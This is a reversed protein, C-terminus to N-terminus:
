SNPAEKAPVHSIQALYEQGFAKTLQQLIGEPMSEEKKKWGKNWFLVSITSPHTNCVETPIKLHTNGFEWTEHVTWQQFPSSKKQAGSIPQKFELARSYYWANNESFRNFVEVESSNWGIVSVESDQSLTYDQWPMANVPFGLKKLSTITKTDVPKDLPVRSNM